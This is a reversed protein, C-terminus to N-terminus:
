EEPFANYYDDVLRDHYFWGIHASSEMIDKLRLCLSYVKKYIVRILLHVIFTVRGTKSTFWNDSLYVRSGECLEKIRNIGSGIQEVFVM